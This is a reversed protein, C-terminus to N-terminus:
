KPEAPKAPVPEPMKLPGKQGCGGLALIAALFLAAVRIMGRMIFSLSKWRDTSATSARTSDESSADSESSVSRSAPMRVTSHGSPERTITFRCVGFRSIQTAAREPPNWKLHRSPSHRSVREPSSSKAESARM